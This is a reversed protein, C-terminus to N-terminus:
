FCHIQLSILGGPHTKQPHVEQLFFDQYGMGEGNM